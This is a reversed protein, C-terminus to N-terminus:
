GLGGGRDGARSRDRRGHGGPAPVAAPRGPGRRERAVGAPARARRRAAGGHKRALKLACEVAEAGSNCLCSQMGGSLEALKAALQAGPETAYLNSVHVLRGAQEAIARTVAPHCHGVSTVALGAVLDLYRKGDADVLTCAHGEVFTVPWRRYTDMLAPAATVATV